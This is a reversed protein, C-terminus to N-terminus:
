RVQQFNYQQLGQSLLQKAQNQVRAIESKILKQDAEFIGLGSLDVDKSLEVSFSLPPHYKM